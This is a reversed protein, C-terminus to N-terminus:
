VSPKPQNNSDEGQTILTLDDTADNNSPRGGNNDDEESNSQTYATPHPKFISDWDEANEMEMLSVYANVDIGTSAIWMSKSGNGNMYLDKCMGVFKDKNALSTPLYYLTIYRKKDQIVNQNIVFELEKAIESVWTYVKSFLLELNNQQSSYSGSEGDLLGLAYGLGMAIKSNLKPEIDENLIDTKTDIKNIETGGAVSFVSTGNINNKTLIADKVTRHQNEQQDKTLSCKGQEGVPFTQYIIQNNVEGLVSRKTATLYDNYFVDVLASMALPRGYPERKNSRIKHVITKNNNLVIWSGTTNGKQYQKYGDRIEKPFARIKQEKRQGEFNEFYKLDFALVPRNNKYGKIKVYDTPLSIISYKTSENIEYISEVDYDSLFRIKDKPLANTEFYYYCAGDNCDRFLADRILEENRIEFLVNEFVQKLSETKKDKSKKNNKNGILIHSLCPLAVIYDIANSVISNTNYALRCMRRIEKNNAIPNSLFGQLEKTEYKDFIDFFAHKCGEGVVCWSNFEYEKEKDKDEM